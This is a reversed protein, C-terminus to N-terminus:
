SSTNPLTLSPSPSQKCEEAVVVVVEEEEEIGVVLCVTLLLHSLCHFFRPELHWLSHSYFLFKNVARVTALQAAGRHITAAPEDLGDLGASRQGAADEGGITPCVFWLLVVDASSGRLVGLRQQAHWQYM